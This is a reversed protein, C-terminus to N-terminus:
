STTKPLLLTLLLSTELTYVYHYFVVCTPHLRYIACTTRITSNLVPIIFDVVAIINSFFLSFGAGCDPLTPKRMCFITQVSALLYYYDISIM